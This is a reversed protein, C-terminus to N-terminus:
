NGNSYTSRCCCCAGARTAQAWCAGSFRATKYSGFWVAAGNTLAGAGLTIKTEEAHAALPLAAILMALTLLLIMGKRM